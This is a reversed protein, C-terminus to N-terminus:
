YIVLFSIMASLFVCNNSTVEMVPMLVTPIKVTPTVAVAPPTPIAEVVKM